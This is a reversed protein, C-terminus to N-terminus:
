VNGGEVKVAPPPGTFGEPVGSAPRGISIGGPAPGVWAGLLGSWMSGGALIRQVAKYMQMDFYALGTKPDRYKAPWATIACRPKPPPPPINDGTKVKRHKGTLYKAEDPSFTATHSAPLLLKAAQTPELASSTKAKKTTNLEDFQELM